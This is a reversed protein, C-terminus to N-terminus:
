WSSSTFPLVLTMSKEGPIIEVPRVRGSNIEFAQVSFSKFDMVQNFFLQISTDNSVCVKEISVAIDNLHFVSNLTGPTGGGPAESARWNESGACPNYPNIM